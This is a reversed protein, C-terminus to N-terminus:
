KFAAATLLLEEQDDDSSVVSIGELSRRTQILHLRTENLSLELHKLSQRVKTELTAGDAEAVQINNSALNPALPVRLRLHGLACLQSLETQDDTDELFISLLAEGKSFSINVVMAKRLDSSGPCDIAIQIDTQQIVTM